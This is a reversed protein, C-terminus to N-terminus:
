RSTGTPRVSCGPSSRGRRRSAARGVRRASRRSTSCASASGSAKTSNRWRSRAAGRQSPACGSSERGSTSRTPRTPRGASSSRRWRTTAPGNRTSGSSTWRTSSRWGRRSSARPSRRSRRTGHLGDVDLLADGPDGGLRADISQQLAQSIPLLPEAENLRAAQSRLLAEDAERSRKREAM